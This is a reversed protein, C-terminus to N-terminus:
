FKLKCLSLQCLPVKCRVPSLDNDDACTCYFALHIYHTSLLAFSSLVLVPM